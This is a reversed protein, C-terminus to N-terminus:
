FRDNFVRMVEKKVDDHIKDYLDVLVNIDQGNAKAIYSLSIKASVANTTFTDRFDKITCSIMTNERVIDWHKKSVDTQHKSYDPRCRYKKSPFLYKGKHKRAESVLRKFIPFINDTIVIPIQRISRTKVIEPDLNFTRAKLNIDEVRLSLLEKKRLGTEVFIRIQDALLFYELRESEKILATVEWDELARGNDSAYPNIVLMKETFEKLTWEQIRARKLAYLMFKRDHTLDGKKGYNKLNETERFDVYEAWKVEYETEFKDLYRCHKEFWEGMRKFSQESESYTNKSKVKKIKLATKFVENITHRGRRKKKKPNEKIEELKTKAKGVTKEGTSVEHMRGKIRQRWYFIGTRTDKFLYQHKTAEWRSM